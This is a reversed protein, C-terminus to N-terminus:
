INPSRFTEAQGPEKKLKEIEEFFSLEKELQSINKESESLSKEIQVESEAAKKEDEESLILSEIEEKQSKAFQFNKKIESFKEAIKKGIARYRETGTLKELIEARERANSELFASFEGQALMISRCFQKYDLQIISITEKELSAAAGFSKSEGVGDDEIKTVLYEPKQLNGSARARKQSFSSVYTGKKCQYTVTVQCFYCGRTMIENGSKGSNISELRPTRGYLALTVADLLTTKGAGTPGCIVFIDHNKAYDPHTFDISWKGKLSNLNEFELKTIRM